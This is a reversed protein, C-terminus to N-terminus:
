VFFSVCSGKFDQSGHNYLVVGLKGRYDEDIVGAGVDIHYKWALSSRPAIRGYYGVLFLSILSTVSGSPVAVSLDTQILEKGNKMINYEYASFLDYGAAKSTAREPIKAFESHRKVKLLPTDDKRLTCGTHFARTLITRCPTISFM